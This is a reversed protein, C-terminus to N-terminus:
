PVAVAVPLVHAPLVVPIAARDPNLHSVSAPIDQGTRLTSSSIWTM